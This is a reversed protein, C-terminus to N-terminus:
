DYSQLFGLVDPRVDDEGIKLMDWGHSVGPRGVLQKTTTPAKAELNQPKAARISPDGATFCLMMPVTLLPAAEAPTRPGKGGGGTVDINDDPYSLAVVGAVEDPIRGATVLATAGGLSAGMLVVKTAGARKLTSVAAEADATYDKTTSDESLGSGRMDIALVHFGATVLSAAYDWWACLDADKQPLLVVGRAGAGFRVGSLHVGDRTTVVVKAAPTDASKNCRKNPIPAKGPITDAVTKDVANPDANRPASKGTCSSVAVLTAIALLGLAARRPLTGWYTM